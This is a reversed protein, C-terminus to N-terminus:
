PVVCQSCHGQYRVNWSMPWEIINPTSPRSILLGCKIADSLRNIRKISYSTLFMKRNETIFMGSIHIGLNVAHTQGVFLCIFQATSSHKSRRIWKSCSIESPHSSILNFSSSHCYSHSSFEDISWLGTLCWPYIMTRDSYRTTDGPPCLYYWFRSPILRVPFTIMTM